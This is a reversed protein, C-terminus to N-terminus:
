YKTQRTKRHLLARFYFKTRNPCGEHCVEEKESLSRTRHLPGAARSPHRRRGKRAVRREPHEIATRSPRLLGSCRTVDSSAVRHAAAPPRAAHAAPPLSPAAALVRPAPRRQARRRKLWSARTYRGWDTGRRGRRGSESGVLRRGRRPVVHTTWALREGEHSWTRSWTQSRGRAQTVRIDGTAGSPSTASMASPLAFGLENSSSFFTTFLLFPLACEGAPTSEFWGFKQRFRRSPVPLEM